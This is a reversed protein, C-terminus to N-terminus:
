MIVKLMNETLLNVSAVSASRKHTLDSYFYVGDFDEKISIDGLTNYKNVFSPASKGLPEIVPRVIDTNIGCAEIINDRLTVFESLMKQEILDLDIKRFSTDFDLQDETYLERGTLILKM